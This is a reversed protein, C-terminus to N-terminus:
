FARGVVFRTRAKPARGVVVVFLGDVWSGIIRPRFIKILKFDMKAENGFYRVHDNLETEVKKLSRM